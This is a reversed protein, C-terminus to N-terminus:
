NLHHPLPSLIHVAVPKSIKRKAERVNSNIEDGFLIAEGRGRDEGVLLVRGKPRALV